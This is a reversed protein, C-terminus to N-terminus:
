EGHVIAPYIQTAILPHLQSKPFLGANHYAAFDERSKSQRARRSILFWPSSCQDTDRVLFGEGELWSWAEMLAQSVEVQRASYDPYQGHLNFTTNASAAEASFGGAINGYSILHTLLVGAVEEM